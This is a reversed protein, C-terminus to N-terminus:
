GGDQMGRPDGRQMQVFLITLHHDFDRADAAHPTM